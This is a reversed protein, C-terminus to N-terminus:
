VCIWKISSGDKNYKQGPTNEYEDYVPFSDTFLVNYFFLWPNM